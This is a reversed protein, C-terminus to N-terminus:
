KKKIVKLVIIVAIAVALVSTVITGYLRLYDNVNHWNQGLKMGAYLIIGNWLLASISSLITAPVLKMHSMGALFSVVARTGSLFRNAVIVFYGWKRFWNETKLVANAPIFRYRGSMVLSKDVKSGVLFMSVFGLASGITAALLLSPFDVIGIGCLTGIFVLIVDSPAPPFINEVYSNLVTFLLIGWWPLQTLYNIIGQLIEENM